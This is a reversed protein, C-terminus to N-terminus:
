HWAGNLADFFSGDMQAIIQEFVRIRLEQEETLASSDAEEVPLGTVPDVEAEEEVEGPTPTDTSPPALFRARMKPTPEKGIIPAAGDKGGPVASPDAEETKNAALLDKADFEFFWKRGTIADRKFRVVAKVQEDTMMRRYVKAGKLGMLEDPNYKLWSSRAYLLSESWGTEGLTANGQAGDLEAPPAMPAPKAFILDRFREGLSM